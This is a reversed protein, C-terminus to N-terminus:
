GKGLPDERGLLLVQTEQRAPLNKVLQAIVSDWLVNWGNLTCIYIRSLLFHIIGFFKRLARKLERGVNGVQVVGIMYLGRNGLLCYNGETVLSLNEKKLIKYSNYKNFFAVYEIKTSRKSVIIIKFTDM